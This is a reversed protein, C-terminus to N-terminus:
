KGFMAGPAWLFPQLTERPSYGAVQKQEKAETIISRQALNYARVADSQEQKVLEQMFRSMIEASMFDDVFWLTGYVNQVGKRMFTDIFSVQDVGPVFGMRNLEEEVEATSMLGEGDLNSKFAKPVYTVATNCASLIVYRTHEFSQEPLELIEKLTLLGDASEEIPGQYIDQGKASSLYLFGNLPSRSKLNSESLAKIRFMMDRKQAQPSLKGTKRVQALEAEFDIHRKKFLKDISILSSLTDSYPMGHTAFYVIEYGNDRLSNRVWTETPQPPTQNDLGKFKPLIKMPAMADSTGDLKLELGFDRQDSGGKIDATVSALEDITGSLLAMPFNVNDANAMGFLKKVQSSAVPREIADIFSPRLYAFDYDEILYQPTGQDDISSVLASYPLQSLIGDSVIYLREHGQVFEAAPAFLYGYLEHYIRNTEDLVQQLQAPNYNQASRKRPWGNELYNVMYDDRILKTLTDTTVDVSFCQVVDKRVATILLREPLSTYVLVADQDRINQQLTPIDIRAAADFLVQDSPYEQQWQKLIQDYDGELKKIRSLQQERERQQLALKAQAEADANKDPAAPLPPLAKEAAAKSKQLLSLKEFLDQKSKDEFKIDALASSAKQVENRLTEGLRLMQNLYKQDKTKDFLAGCVTQAESYLDEKGAMYEGFMEVANVSLYMQTVLDIAQMYHDYSQELNGAKLDAYGIGQHASWILEKLGMPEAIKLAQENLTRVQALAENPAIQVSNATNADDEELILDRTAAHPNALDKYIVATQVLTEAQARPLELEEYIKLAKQYYDLAGASDGKQLYIMRGTGLYAGALGEKFDCQTFLEIARAYDKGAQDYNGAIRYVLARNVTAIGEDRVNKVSQAIKISEDFLELAKAHDGMSKHVLGLNNKDVGINRELKAQQEVKIAENLQKLAQEYNGQEWALIGLNSNTDAISQQEKLSVAIEQAASLDAIAESYAGLNGLCLGRATLIRAKEAPEIKKGAKKLAESYADAALSYAELDRFADGQTAYIISLEDQKIKLKSGLFQEIEETLLAHEGAQRRCYFLNKAYKLKEDATLSKIQLIKAYVEAAQKFDESKIFAVAANGLIMGSQKADKSQAGAELFLTGAKAFDGAKYAASAAKFNEEMTAATVAMCFAVSAVVAAFKLKLM